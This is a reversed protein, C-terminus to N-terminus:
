AAIVSNPESSQNVGFGENSPKLSASQEWRIVVCRRATTDNVLRDLTVPKGFM